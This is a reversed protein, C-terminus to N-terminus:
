RVNWNRTLASCVLQRILARIPEPDDRVPEEIRIPQAAAPGRVLPRIHNTLSQDGSFLARAILDAEYNPYTPFVTSCFAHMLSM